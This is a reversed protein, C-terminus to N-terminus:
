SKFAKLLTWTRDAAVNGSAKIRLNTISAFTGNYVVAFTAAPVYIPAGVTDVLTKYTTGGDRSVEWTYTLVDLAAPAFVTIAESDYGYEKWDFSNSVAAGNPITLPPLEAIFLQSM